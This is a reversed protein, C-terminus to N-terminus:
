SLILLGIEFFHVIIEFISLDIDQKWNCALQFCSMLNKGSLDGNQNRM